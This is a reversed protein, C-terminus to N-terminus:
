SAEGNKTYKKKTFEGKKAEKEKKETEIALLATV